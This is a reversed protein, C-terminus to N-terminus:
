VQNERVTPPVKSGWDRGQPGDVRSSHSSLNGTFVSAFFNNLVEAKEEDTTVLKGTKSILHPVRERVKRKQSFHRSSGKKNNKTDRALNLELQVKAKKRRADRCVKVVNRYEEWTAQGKKWMRYVEKKWKIKTLHEKSMWAPRRGGKSSKKRMPICQDQTQLFHHKFISWSEQVGRGELARVWPIGGLLGKFLGFNARRFDITAI